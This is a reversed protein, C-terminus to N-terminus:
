SGVPCSGAGVEVAERDVEDVLGDGGDAGVDGVVVPGVVDDVVVVVADPEVLVDVPDGFGSAGISRM